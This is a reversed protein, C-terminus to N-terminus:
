AAVSQRAARAEDRLRKKRANERQKSAKRGAVRRELREKWLPHALLDPHDRAIEQAVVDALGNDLCFAVPTKDGRRYFRWLEEHLAARREVGGGQSPRLNLRDMLREIQKDITHRNGADPNAEVIMTSLAEAGLDPNDVILRLQEIRNHCWEDTIVWPHDPIARWDLERNEDYAAAPHWGSARALSRVRKIQKAERGTNEPTAPTDAYRAHLAVLRRTMDESVHQIEGRRARRVALELVYRAIGSAEEQWPMGYGQAQLTGVHWLLEDPTFRRADPFDSVNVALLARATEIAVDEARNIRALTGTSVGIKAAISPLTISAARLDALRKRAAIQDAPSAYRRVRVVDVGRHKLLANAKRRRIRATVGAPGPANKLATTTMTSPM